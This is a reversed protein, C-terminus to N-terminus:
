IGIKFLAMFDIVTPDSLHLCLILQEEGGCFLVQPFPLFISTFLISNNNKLYYLM